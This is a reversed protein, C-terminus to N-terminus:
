CVFDTPVAMVGSSFRKVRAQFAPPALGVGWEQASENWEEVYSGKGSGVAYTKEGLSVIKPGYAYGALGGVPIGGIKGNGFYYKECGKTGVCLIYPDSNDSPRHIGCGYPTPQFQLEPM